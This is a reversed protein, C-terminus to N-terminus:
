CSKALRNRSAYKKPIRSSFARRDESERKNKHNFCHVRMKDCVIVKSLFNHDRQVRQVWEKAVEVRQKMQKCMLFHPVWASCVRHMQLHESLIRHISSKSIHVMSELTKVSMIHHDEKIIAVVANINTETVISTPRGSHPELATLEWDETFFNHWISFRQGVLVIM